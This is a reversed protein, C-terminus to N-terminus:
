IIITKAYQKLNLKKGSYLAMLSEYDNVMKANTNTPCLVSQTMKNPENLQASYIKMIVGLKNSLCWYPKTPTLVIGVDVDMLEEMGQDSCTEVTYRVRDFVGHHYGVAVDVRNDMVYVDTDNYRSKIIKGLDRPDISNKTIDPHDLLQNCLDAYGNVPRRMAGTGYGNLMSIDLERLLARRTLKSQRIGGWKTVAMYKMLSDYLWKPFFSKYLNVYNTSKEIKDLFLEIGKSCDIVDDLEEPSEFSLKNIPYSVLGNKSNIFKLSEYPIFAYRGNSVNETDVTHGLISEIRAMDSDVIYEGVYDYPFGIVGSAVHTVKDGRNALDRAFICSDLTYGIVYVKKAM